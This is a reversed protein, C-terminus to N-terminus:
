CACMLAVLEKGTLALYHHNPDVAKLHRKFVRVAATRKHGVFEEPYRCVTSQFREILERVEPLDLDRVICPTPENSFRGDEIWEIKRSTALIAREAGTKLM